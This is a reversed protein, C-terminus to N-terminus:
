RTSALVASFSAERRGNGSRAADPSAKWNPTPPGPAQTCSSSGSSSVTPVMRMRVKVNERASSRSCAPTANRLSNSPPPTHQVDPVGGGCTLPSRAGTARATYPPPGPAQGERSGVDRLNIAMKPGRSAHLPHSRFPLAVLHLFPRGLRDARRIVDLAVSSPVPPRTKALQGLHVGPLRPSLGEARM